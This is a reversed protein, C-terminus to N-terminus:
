IKERAYGSTAEAPLTLTSQGLAKSFFSSALAVFLAGERKAM